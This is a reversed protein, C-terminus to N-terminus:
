DQRPIPTYVYKNKVAEKRYYGLEVLHDMSTRATEYVCGIAKKYQAITYKKGLTCHRAYFKAEHKRLSPDLELLHQELRSAQKEDLVPPVYAVAIQETSQNVVVKHEEKIVPQSVPAPQSIPAPQSVPVPQPAPAPKPVPTPEVVRVPKEEVPQNFLDTQEYQAPKNEIVPKKEEEVVHVPQVQPEAFYTPTPATYVTEEPAQMATKEPESRYFDQKLTTAKANAIIDLLEDCKKDIFKLMYNVFYTTDSTKQVEVFIKAIEEQDQSLISELPLLIGVDGLDNNALISKTILLALEDSFVDFPRVYVIYYYAIAAKCAANLSSNTIFNFVGNMMEEILRVPACTYVRDIIVRNERNNDENQRYFTTIEEIGTIQTYLAALYDVDIPNMYSKKAYQLANLYNLLVRNEKSIERVEGHIMSRLYADTVDLDYEKALAQLSRIMCQDEFYGLDGNNPNLKSHERMLRILKMDTANSLASVSPCQCLILQNKEISRITLYHNFTSRYSLINSWINDILSMKLERSVESRTAYKNETFRIALESTAM